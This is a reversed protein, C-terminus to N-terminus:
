GITPGRQAPACLFKFKATRRAIVSSSAGIPNTQFHAETVVFKTCKHDRFYHLLFVEVSHIAYTNWEHERCELVKVTSMLVQQGEPTRTDMYGLLLMEM